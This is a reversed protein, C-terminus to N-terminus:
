KTKARISKTADTIVKLLETATVHEAISELSSEAKSSKSNTQIYLISLQSIDKKNRLYEMTFPVLDPDAIMARLMGLRFNKRITNIIKM